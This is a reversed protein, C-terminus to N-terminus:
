GPIGRRRPDAHSRLQRKYVDSTYLRCYADQDPAGTKPEITYDSLDELPREEVLEACGGLLFLGACLLFAACKKLCPKGNLNMKLDPKVILKM